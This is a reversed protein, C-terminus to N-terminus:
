KRENMIEEFNEYGLIEAITNDEFWFFDNIETETMGDNEFNESELFSEIINMEDDTLYDRTDKGGQWFEFDKLDKEYSIKM